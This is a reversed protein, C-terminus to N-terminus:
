TGNKLFTEVLKRAAVRPSTKGAAVATELQRLQGAIDPATELKERLIEATEHWLWAKAQAARAQKIEGNETMTRRYDEITQWIKDIGKNEIASCTEVPVQWNTHRPHLFGLAGRYDAATHGAAPELEGDAKNVVIIDALEVIGRKIGQLEDGAGPLLLLM